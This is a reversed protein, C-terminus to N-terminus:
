QALRMEATWKPLWGTDEEPRYRSLGFPGERPRSKADYAPVM